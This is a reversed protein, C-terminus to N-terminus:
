KHAHGRVVVQGTLVAPRSSRAANGAHRPRDPRRLQSSLAPMFFLHIRRAAQAAAISMATLRASSAYM